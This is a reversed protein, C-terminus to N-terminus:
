PPLQPAPVPYLQFYGAAPRLEFYVRQTGPPHVAFAYAALERATFRLYGLRDARTRVPVGAIGPLLWWRGGLATPQTLRVHQLNAPLQRSAERNLYAQGTLTLTLLALEPAPPINANTSM